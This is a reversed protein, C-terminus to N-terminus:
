GSVLVKGRIEKRFPDSDKFSAKVRYYSWKDLVIKDLRNRDYQNFQFKEISEFPVKRETQWINTYLLGDNLFEIRHGKKQGKIVDYSFSSFMIAISLMIITFISALIWGMIDIESEETLIFIILVFSFLYLLGGMPIMVLFTLVRDSLSHTLHYEDGM